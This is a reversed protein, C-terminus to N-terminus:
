DITYVSCRMVLCLHVILKSLPFLFNGPKAQYKMHDKKSKTVEFEKRCADHLRWNNLSEVGGFRKRQEAGCGFLVWSTRGVIVATLLM